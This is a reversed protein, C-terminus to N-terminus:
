DVYEKRWYLYLLVFTGIFLSPIILIKYNIDEKEALTFNWDYWFIEEFYKAIEESEVIIGVERNNRFSNEALNISSILVKDDVIIGKNHIPLDKSIKVDINKLFNKLEENKKATEKYSADLIIRVEIGSENKEIIKQLIPNLGNKWNKEIYNQEVLIINKASDIFNIIEEESNDPSLILTYNFSSNIFLPNFKPIYNGQPIYYSISYDRPPKGHTLSDEDFKISDQFSPNWDYEFVISLFNSINEDEILIGWERNGFSPSIPIGSKGWNASEIIVKKGDIVCRIFGYKLKSVFERYTPPAIFGRGIYKNVVIGEELPIKSERSFGIAAGRGSDPIPIVVDGNAPVNKALEEGMRVRAIYISVGNFISDPRSFYVYEFICPSVLAPISSRTFEISSGDYSAIEGPLIERWNSIGIVDLAATESSAFFEENTVAISLPRFGRPDKAVVIRPESTLVAISYGGIVYNPLVKLAEIFDNGFEKALKYLVQAFVLADGNIAKIDFEKALQIYNAITGNFVIAAKFRDEGVVIPQVQSDLYGGSTAYRIHGIGGFAGEVKYLKYLNTYNLAESVLGRGVVSYIDGNKSAIAVGAAEQGRHQLEFMMSIITSVVDRSGIYGVIGCM